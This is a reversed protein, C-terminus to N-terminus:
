ATFGARRRPSGRRDPGHPRPQNVLQTTASEVTGTAMREAHPDVFGVLVVRFSQCMDHVGSPLPRNVHAAQRCGPLLDDGEILRDPMPSPRTRGATMQHTDRPNRRKRDRRQCCPQLGGRAEGLEEARKAEARRRSPTGIPTLCTIRSPSSRSTNRPTSTTAYPVTMM